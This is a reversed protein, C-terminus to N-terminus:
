AMAEGSYIETMRLELQLGAVAITAEAGAIVKPAPTFPVSTSARSWTWAKPEDQSLVLYALLSDLELYEAAKDGLDIEATSPSLVEALLAPAHTAYSRAPSGAPFVVVDPYRLTEPGTDVGFEMIVDWRKPDLRTLLLAGLRMVIAGHGRSPRPMMVVCGGALECREGEVADRELFAAKSVRLDPRVNM